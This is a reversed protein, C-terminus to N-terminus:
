PAGRYATVVGHRWRMTLDAGDATSTLNYALRVAPDSHGVWHMRRIEDADLPALDASARTLWQELSNGYTWREATTVEAANMGLLAQAIQATTMVHRGPEKLAMAHEYVWWARHQPDDVPPPGEAIVLAGGPPVRAWWRALGDRWDAEPVHHLVMRAVLLEPIPWEDPTALDDAVTVAVDHWAAPGVESTLHARCRAVMAQSWDYAILSGLCRARHLDVLYRTLAGTGCGIEWTLPRGGIRQAADAVARATWALLDPHHVWALGDYTTARADWWSAADPPM